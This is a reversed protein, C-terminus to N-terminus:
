KRKDGQHHLCYDCRFRRDAEALSCPAIDRFAAMNSLDTITKHSPLSKTRHIEKRFLASLLCIEHTVETKKHNQKVELSLKKSMRTQAVTEGRFQIQVRIPTLPLLQPLSDKITVKDLYYLLLASQEAPLM